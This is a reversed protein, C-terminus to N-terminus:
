KLSVRTALELLKFGLPDVTEKDSIVNGEASFLSGRASLIVLGTQHAESFGVFSAYGGTGGDHWHVTLGEGLPMIIWGLGSGLGAEPDKFHEQRALAFAQSLPAKTTQLNAELFTLMDNVTSRLAGGPALVGFEWLPIMKGEPDYARALRRQQDPSLYQVTDRMKLPQCINRRVLTEYDQGTKLQLIHGLLAMGFTSYGWRTDREHELKVAGLDRYLDEVTFRAYCSHVAEGALKELTAANRPLGSSHTALQRLTIEGVEPALQVSAPLHQRVTDDLSVIGEQCLRALLISTFVKTISGIEFLTTGDPRASGPGHSTGASTVYRRGRQVVGIVLGNGEERAQRRAAQDLQAQLDHTDTATAEGAATAQQGLCISGPSLCIVILGVLVMRLRPLTM